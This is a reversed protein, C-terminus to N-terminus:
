GRGVCRPQRNFTGPQLGYHLLAPRGTYLAQYQRLLGNYVVDLSKTPSGGNPLTEKWRKVGRPGGGVGCPTKASHIFDSLLSASIAGARRKYTLASHALGADVATPSPGNHTQPRPCSRVAVSFYCYSTTDGEPLRVGFCLGRRSPGSFAGLLDAAVICRAHSYAM